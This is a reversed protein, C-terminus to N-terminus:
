FSLGSSPVVKQIAGSSTFSLKDVAVERRYTGGGNPGNSVHYVIYWQGALQAVGAHNTPWDTEGSGRPLADLVRGGYTWPGMPSSSTAYDITAPNSGAAYIEYYKGSRKILYPAEFYGQPTSEQMRGNVSIMDSNLRAEIMRWFGGYHLYAQGDDDVFVTPDITFPTDSPTAFGMNSMEFADNVLPKGLADTWPGGPSDAVAVGIAMAGTSAEQVPVYWYYKGNTAKVMQGAWANANAWRFTGLTLAVKKTWHVMDTSSLLFWERMIFANQGAAAEDHGCAIYFTCGDALAAPDATYQDTFLPNTGKSGAVPPTCGGSSFTATLTMDGGVTVTLPNATGTAAGSWGTFTYGSAPTATVAGTTGAQVTYTGPGPSTTGNGSTAITVTYTTVESAAVVRWQQNAGGNEAWQIIKTGNATGAGYADIAMGSSRSTIRYAGGGLDAGSWQQSAGGGCTAQVISAGASTSAGSVALCRDSGVVRLVYYGEATELRLQQSTAGSCDQLELAAQDATSGGTVGVCRGSPVGVLYIIDGLTVGLAQTGFGGGGTGAANPGLSGCGALAAFLLMTAIRTPCLQAM